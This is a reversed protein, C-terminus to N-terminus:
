KKLGIGWVVWWLMQGGYLSWLWHDFLGAVLLIVAISLFLPNKKWIYWMFYSFIFISLGLFLTGMEALELFYINHVPQLDWVKLTPNLKFLYFTYAGPGV